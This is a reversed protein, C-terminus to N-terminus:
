IMVRLNSHIFMSFIIFFPFLFTYVLFFSSCIFIPICYISNFLCLLFFSYAVPFVLYSMSLGTALWRSSTLLVLYRDKNHEYCWSRTRSTLLQLNYNSNGDVYSCEEELPPCVLSTKWAFIAGDKQRFFFLFLM